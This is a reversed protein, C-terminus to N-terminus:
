AYAGEERLPAVRAALKDTERQGDVPAIMKILTDVDEVGRPIPFHSRPIEPKNRPGPRYREIGPRHAMERPSIDPYVDSWQTYFNLPAANITISRLQGAVDRQLAGGCVSCAEARDRDAPSRQLDYFHGAACVYPYLPM